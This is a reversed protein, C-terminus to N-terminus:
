VYNFVIKVDILNVIEIKKKRTITLSYKYFSPIFKRWIEIFPINGM